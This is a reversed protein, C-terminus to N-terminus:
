SLFTAMADPIQSRVAEIIPPIDTKSLGTIEWAEDKVDLMDVEDTSDIEELCAAMHAIHILAVEKSFQTAKEPTHHFEICEQYLPPLNWDRVLEAGVDCHSFGLLHIEASFVDENETGELAYLLVQKSEEPLKNFIVLQGIDHLLGAVFLADARNRMVLKGLERAAIGCAISHRWFADMTILENPIGDFTQVASTALVLDRLQTTGLVSVARNVTEIQKSLGYFPSNAIKLIRLTLAPDQAVIKGIDDLSSNPDDVIENIRVCASPLSVIGKVDNVLQAPTIEM